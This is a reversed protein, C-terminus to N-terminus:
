MVVSFHDKVQSPIFIHGGLELFKAPHFDEKQLPKAILDKKAPNNVVLDNIQQALVKQDVVKIIEDLSTLLHNEGEYKQHKHVEMTEADIPTWEHPITLTGAKWEPKLGAHSSFTLVIDANKFSESNKTYTCNEPNKDAKGSSFLVNINEKDAIEGCAIKYLEEFLKIHSAGDGGRFTHILITVPENSSKSLLKRAQTVYYQIIAAYALNVQKENFHDLAEEKIGYGKEKKIKRLTDFDEPDILPRDLVVSLNAWIQGKKVCEQIRGGEDNLGEGFNKLEAIPLKLTLPIPRSSSGPNYDLPPFDKWGVLDFHWWESPMGKFNHREMVEQLLERNQISELSAGMYDRHAKESFDDFESPMTLEQGEKTILTLDVATGRTHRGGKRPDSVYREDPVLEWFKWQAAMPRFGDWVKLGLGMSELEEQVERLHLAAEKVLLCCQFDYVVQGTFNDPTAYKLDVQINPIFLQIDVLESGTPEDGQLHSVIGFLVTLIMWFSGKIKM